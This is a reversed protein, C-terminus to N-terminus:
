MWMERQCAAIWELAGSGLKREIQRTAQQLNPMRSQMNHCDSGLLHIRGQKLMRLAMAQTSRRLFFEANAQVMVPMQELRQPIGFTRLPRIYREVHAVIPTLRRRAALEELERYAYESWPTDDM